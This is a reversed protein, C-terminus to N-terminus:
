KIQQIQYLAVDDFAVSPGEVELTVAVATVTPPVLIPIMLRQWGGTKEPRITTQYNKGTYWGKATRYRLTFGVRGPKEPNSLKLWAVGLYKQGAQV